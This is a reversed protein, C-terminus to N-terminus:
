ARTHKVESIRAEEALYLCGTIGADDGLAPTVIYTDIPPIKSYGNLKEIVKHRIKQLLGPQKMVGGSLIIREPSLTLSFTVCAQAIYDAVYTWNPDEIDLENGSKGTRVKIASGSALGELCQDKHYPCWGDTRDEADKTILIHGMEPHTYGGLIHDNVIYGGGVGTGITLYLCSNLESAAGTQYEGYAAVNVDTTWVVPIDFAGKIAGLFNYDKWALKPTSTIYGYTESDKNVDIPGFSGIGISEIPYQNFFDTVKKITEDPDTTPFQIRKIIKGEEGGVACVFKTGGAEVAGYM